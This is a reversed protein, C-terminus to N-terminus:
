RLSHSIRYVFCSVSVWFDHGCQWSDNVWQSWIPRYEIVSGEMSLDSAAISCDLMGVAAATFMCFSMLFM